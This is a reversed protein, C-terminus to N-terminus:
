YLNSLIALDSEQKTTVFWVLVDFVENLIRELSM